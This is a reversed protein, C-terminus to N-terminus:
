SKSILSDEILFYQILKDSLSFFFISTPKRDGKIIQPWYNQKLMYEFVTDIEENM